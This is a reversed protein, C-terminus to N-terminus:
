AQSARPSRYHIGDLIFDRDGSDAFGLLVLAASRRKGLKPERALGDDLGRIVGSGCDGVDVTKSGVAIIAIVCRPERRGEAKRM